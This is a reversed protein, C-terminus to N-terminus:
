VSAGNDPQEDSADGTGSDGPENIQKRADPLGREAVIEWEEALTEATQRLGPGGREIIAREHTKLNAKIEMIDAQAAKFPEIDGKPSGIWDAVTIAAAKGYFDPIDLRGRLWAEEQIMVNLPQCVDAGLWQRHCFFVRWAELMASRFGAFSTGDVDKFAVQYPLGMALSLSKKILKTFPEFTTGPRSAAIAHPKEGANGYMVQGPEFEQYRTQKGSASTETIDALSEGTTWAADGGVEIFMSFAATVINSVLEADLLDNLDRSMKMSPSLEPVGRVQEPERQIFGHLVRHRHGAVREIRIFNDSHDSTSKGPGASKRIWYAVPEGYPGLEVGDRINERNILDAPTKLRLPHVVQCALSFPRTRDDLMPCLILYEGYQFMSRKALFQVQGFSMRRGADAVPWWDMFNRILQRKLSVALEKTIGIEDADAMYHPVLGSGVVTVAFGEALGAANPDNAILDTSRRCLEEREITEQQRSLLRQPVWNRMSGTRKAGSRSIGYEPSLPRVPLPRDNPGYLVVPSRGSAMAANRDAMAAAVVRSAMDAIMSNGGRMM